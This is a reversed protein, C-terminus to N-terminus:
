AAVKGLPKGLFGQPRLLLFLILITFVIADEWKSSLWWASLNQTLGLLVAGLAVGPISGVGGVIVALMGMLLLQFGLAPTMDGDLALLMGAMGALSSGLLFAAMIVSGSNVGCAQALDQDCAVARLKKGIRTRGLLLWTLLCFVASVLIIMIQIPTIRAGLIPLGEPPNGARLTQTGSGFMLVVVAQLAVYIGLSALLLVGASAARQRLPRYISLEMMGGLVASVIIGGIAAAWLPLGLWVKLLFTTYAGATIVIGHAFHFFRTASYILAFGIGVMLYEAAAVIANVLVQTM